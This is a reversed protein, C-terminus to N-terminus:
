NRRATRTRKDNEIQELIDSLSKSTRPKAYDTVYTQETHFEATYLDVLRSLDISKFCRKIRWIHLGFNKPNIDTAKFYYLYWGLKEPSVKHRKIIAKILKLTNGWDSALCEGKRWSYPPIYGHRNLYYLEVLFNYCDHKVQPTTISQYQM